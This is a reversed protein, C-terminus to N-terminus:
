HAQLQSLEDPAPCVITAFVASQRLIKFRQRKVNLMNNRSLMSPFTRRRVKSQGTVAVQM